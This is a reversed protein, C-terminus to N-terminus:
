RVVGYVMLSFAFVALAVRYYGFVALGHRNLYAVMWKVAIIASVFATLLGVLPSTWGFAALIKPGDKAIEYTTAGGLTTLGLLFSFEVAARIRLGVMRGAVITVLSRSVGPWMAICQAIGIVFSQKLSLSEIGFGKDQDPASRSVSLIAIGGLLWAATIPWLGFLHEKIVSELIIGIAAAPVFAATLNCALVCGRKNRGLVGQAVERVRSWYLWLVALIAGIQVAIVYSDAAERATASNGVGILRQVLYLHGTSSVPLYETIGEMIGLILAQATTMGLQAHPM